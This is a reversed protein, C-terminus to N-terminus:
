EGEAAQFAEWAAATRRKLDDAQAEWESLAQAGGNWAEEFEEDLRAKAARLDDLTERYQARTAESAKTAGADIADGLKELDVGAAALNRKVDDRTEQIRDAAADVVGHAKERSDADCAILGGMLVLGLVSGLISNM